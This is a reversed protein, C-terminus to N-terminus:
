KARTVFKVSRILVEGQSNRELSIIANRGKASQYMMETNLEAFVKISSMLSGILSVAAFLNRTALENPPPEVQVKGGDAEVVSLWKQLREPVNNPSVKDYFAVEVSPTKAYLSSSLDQDFKSIDLFSLKAEAVTAQVAASSPANTACSALLVSLVVSFAKFVM